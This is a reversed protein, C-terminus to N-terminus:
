VRIGTSEVIRKFNRHDESWTLFIFYFILFSLGIGPLKEALAQMASRPEFACRATRAMLHCIGKSSGIKKSVMTLGTGFDKWGVEKKSM